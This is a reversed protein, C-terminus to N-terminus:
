ARWIRKTQVLNLWQVLQQQKLLQVLTWIGSTRPLHFTGHVNANLAQYCFSEECSHSGPEHLM